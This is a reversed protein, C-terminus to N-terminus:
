MIRGHEYKPIAMTSTPKPLTITGTHVGKSYNEWKGNEPYPKYYENSWPAVGNTWFSNYNVSGKSGQVNKFDFTASFAQALTQKSGKLDGQRHDGSGHAKPDDDASHCTYLLLTADKIDGKPQPLEQVNPADSGSINTKGDGTSTCQEGDGCAFSQNKGHTMVMVEKISGQMNGWDESFGETTGTNSLAVADAGYKKVAENYQVMAQKKFNDDHFIYVKVNKLKEEDIKKGKGDVWDDPSMGDPDVFRLPNNYTYNYPSWRRSVESLPDATQWRGIQNDYMRAGYDYWELGSGDAFEKQQQEKGNYGYKNDPDGFGLATSSIGAMTLGFPYYHTEDVIPSREHTIQLNDFYVLNESENSVFVYAYGNKAVEKADGNIRYITQGSGKAGVQVIESSANVFRFQEDFFLINLYAKPMTGGSGNQPSLFNNFPVSTNLNNTITSGVGHFMSTNASSNILNALVSLISNLGNANSNDTADNPIFYDVKVHLRDRAMVKLLKGAGISQTNKRLLQVKDGNSSSSNFSGPRPTRQDNANVYYIQENNTSADEFAVAPYFSTDKQTTLVMRVNGLHDKVFYDYQLAKDATDYRIRGEEMNLFQLTDQYYVANGLYMTIKGPPQSGPYVEKQIKNGQADYKYIVTGQNDVTIGKPLNMHNYSIDSINKNYDRRNNGNNDYSYDVASTNKNNGLSNMYAGSSRFDGLRTATDNKRDIVNLLKNSNPIYSYLLSDITESSSARWGRQNMNLINGNADYTIGNVSFDLGDTLSFSNNNLQTFSASTLRNTNDYTFDYKRLRGDGTSKWLVGGINGNFQAATYTKGSGNVTFSIKDYGLDFGFYNATSTTDKVFDRNAGLIWGRINYDFVISDLPGGGPGGTPSIVKKKLQGLSNYENLLITTWNSPMTGSNVKTNSVKKNLTIIRGLTDYDMKTLVISTQANSGGKEQKQIMLLPVGNFSYQTILIDTVGTYNTQEVQIVRGKDDYYNASYLYTSTNLVKVRAGTPLGKTLSSQSVAQPYPYANNSPSLLYNDYGVNRTAHLPTTYLSLWNYNDYYTNTLEEYTQGSLNPYATSNYAASYHTSLSSSNNWLGTAIPRNISDYQTYLWQVPSGNRMNADQLLVLRDRADYVMHLEGAGPVKKMQMRRKGDYEYRFCQEQLIVSSNWTLDWSQSFLLEVGKPQIVCRLLGYDDYIYYTCLWGYHGSGGGADSTATLQLKRLVVRGEKDKFEIVQKDNEDVTVSKLLEGATYFSSTAYSAFTGISGSNTVTWLRVSDISTNVWYKMKIGKGDHVWSNGPAYSKDIRNLPSAEFETKAYYYTEGQGNIPSNAGAYFTNQAGFPDTKFGGDGVTAAYPLYSRQLRGLEDYLVPSVLDTATGGTIMSGQKIVTQIPRGLGDFYQTALRASPLGSSTTINNPNTEPKIADWSRIYNSSTSNYAAPTHVSGDQAFTVDILLILFGILPIYKNKM